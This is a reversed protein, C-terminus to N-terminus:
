EIIDGNLFATAGSSKPATFFTDARAQEELQVVREALDASLVPPPPPPPAVPTTPEFQGTVAGDQSWHGSNHPRMALENVLIREDDTEFLEVALMGTVGLAPIVHGFGGVHLAAVCAKAAIVFVGRFERGLM